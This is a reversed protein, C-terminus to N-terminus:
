LNAARPPIWSTQPQPEPEARALSELSVKGAAVDLFNNILILGDKRYTSKRLGKAPDNDIYINEPIKTTAAIKPNKLDRLYEDELVQPSRYEIHGSINLCRLLPDYAITTGTRKNFALSLMVKTLAEEDSMGYRSVPMEPKESTGQMFHHQPMRVEQEFIGSIKHSLDVSREIGHHYFGRFHTYFCSALSIPVYKAVHDSTGTITNWFAIQPGLPIDESGFGTGIFGDLETDAIAESPKHFTRRWETKLTDSSPFNEPSFVTLIVDHRSMAFLRGFDEEPHNPTPMLNDMGLRLAQGAREEGLIKRAEAESYVPLNEARLTGIVPTESTFILAM